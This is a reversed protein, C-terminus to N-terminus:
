LTLHRARLLYFLTAGIRIGHGQLPQLNAAKLAKHIRTIFASKTLPRHANKHKYAFLHLNPPPDNVRLHNQFATEPNTPGDQTAYFIDEGSVSSKTRPVALVTMRLGQPDTEYRVDSPKVHVAPDFSQLTKVTIEGVRACSYFGTTLCSGTAADLPVDPDLQALIAAIIEETYPQRKKRSASPPQLAIAGRIIADFEAKNPVWPVGHIIHWARVGAVYNEVTGGAYNGAASPILDSEPIATCALRDERSVMPRWKYLREGALCLPRLPSPQLALRSPYPKPRASSRRLNPEITTSSNRLGRTTTQATLVANVSTVSKRVLPLPLPLLPATLISSSPPSNPLSPYHRYSNPPLATSAGLGADAPNSDTPVYRTHITVNADTSISHIRRFVTNIEENSSRGNWWGEVVGRNDGYVVIHPPLNKCVLILTRVLFKFGIAEAWGIHRLKSEWGPVLRWARWRPGIIIAIGIGSSADSYAHVNVVECPGPIPRSLDASSLIQFWWDLDAALSRPATRPMFPSNHFYRAMAELGTLYARGRPVILCSHILKGHLKRVDSLVHTRKSRWAAIDDRYKAKKETTLSIRRTDLDWIIGTFPAASSFQFDKSTKWPMGLPISVRDIDDFNYCYQSDVESRPSAGSLDRIPFTFDEDYEEIRGDPLEAGGWWLRGGSQHFGGDPLAALRRALTARRANYEALYIRLIRIFAKDDVWKGHPGIGSARLIDAFADAVLGYAGAGSSEGFCVSTDAAYVDDSDSLEPRLSLDFLNAPLRLVTGPWQSPHTPINRYAESIDRVGIQSGPPLMSVKFCMANFTGWTCPFDDSNIHYNISTHDGHPSRPFSYNQVLRMKELEHSKPVMSLPSSQFPGIASELETRSFPGIYRQAAFESQVVDAFPKLHDGLSSSNPPTITSRIIPISINFGHRLGNPISPYRSILGTSHLASEWASAVLPTLPKSGREILATRLETIPRAAVRANTFTGPGPNAVVAEAASSTSVSTSGMRIPSSEGSM